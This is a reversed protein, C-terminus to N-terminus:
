IPNTHYHHADELNYADQRGTSSKQISKWIGRKTLVQVQANTESLLTRYVVGGKLHYTPETYVTQVQKARVKYGRLMGIRKKPGVVEAPTSPFRKRSRQDDALTKNMGFHFALMQASNMTAKEQEYGTKPLVRAVEYVSHSYEKPCENTGDFISALHLQMEVILPGIEKNKSNFLMNCHVGVYGSEYRVEPAFKNEFTILSGTALELLKPEFLEILEKLQWSHEVVITGRVADGIRSVIYEMDQESNNMRSFVKRTLSANTKTLYMDDPGATFYAGPIASSLNDAFAKFEPAVLAAKALLENVTGVDTSVFERTINMKQDLVDNGIIAAIQSKASLWARKMSSIDTVLPVFASANERADPTSELLETPTKFTVEMSGKYYQDVFSAYETAFGEWALTANFCMATILFLRTTLSM